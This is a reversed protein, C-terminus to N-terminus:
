FEVVGVPVRTLSRRSAFDSSALACCPAECNSPVTASRIKHRPCRPLQVPLARAPCIWFAAVIALQLCAAPHLVSHFRRRLRGAHAPLLPTPFGCYSSSSALSISPSAVLLSILLEACHLLRLASSSSMRAPLHPGTSPAVMAPVRADALLLWVRM